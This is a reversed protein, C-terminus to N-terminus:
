NSPGLPLREVTRGVAARSGMVTAAVAIEDAVRLLVTAQQKWSVRLTEVDTGGTVAQDRDFEVAWLTQAGIWTEGRISYARAEQCELLDVSAGPATVLTMSNANAATVADVWVAVFEEEVAKRVTERSLLDNVDLILETHQAFLDIVSAVDPCLRINAGKETAEKALVPHLTKRGFASSDASVLNVVKGSARSTEVATLWIAVDRAGSGKAHDTKAPLERYAERRLAEVAHDAALPLVQLSKEVAELDPRIVTEPTPYRSEPMDWGLKRLSELASRVSGIRSIADRLRRSRYEDLTPATIRADEAVARLVIGVVGTIPTALLQNTDLIIM